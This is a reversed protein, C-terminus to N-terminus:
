GQVKKRMNRSIGSKIGAKSALGPDVEFSRARIASGGKSQRRKMEREYGEIGLEKIMKAKTKAAGEKTGAM